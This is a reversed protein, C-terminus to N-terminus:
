IVPIRTGLGAGRRGSFPQNGQLKEVGKMERWSCAFQEDGSKQAGRREVMSDCGQTWGTMNKEATRIFTSCDGDRIIM